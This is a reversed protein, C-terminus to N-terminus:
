VSPNHYEVLTHMEASIKEMASKLEEIRKEMYRIKEEVESVASSSGSSLAKEHQEKLISVSEYFDAVYVNFSEVTERVMQYIRETGDTSINIPKLQLKPKM